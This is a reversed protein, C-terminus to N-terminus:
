FVCHQVCQNRSFPAILFCLSQVDSKALRVRVFVFTEPPLPACFVSNEMSEQAAFLIELRLIGAPPAILPM